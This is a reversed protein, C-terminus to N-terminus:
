TREGCTAGDSRVRRELDEPIGTELLRCALIQMRSRIERHLDQHEAQKLAVDAPSLTSAKVHWDHAFRLYLNVATALQEWDHSITGPESLLSYGSEEDYYDMTLRIVQQGVRWDHIFANFEKMYAERQADLEAVEDPTMDETALFPSQSVEILEQAHVTARSVLTIMSMTGEIQRSQYARAGTLEHELQVRDSDIKATILLAMGGLFLAQALAGVLAAIVETERLKAWFGQPGVRNAAVEPREGM